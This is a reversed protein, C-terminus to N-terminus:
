RTTHFVIGIGISQISHSSSGFLEGAGFEIAKIDVNQFLALDLGAFGQVQTFNEYVLSLAPLTPPTVANTRGLGASIQVYPRLVKFPTKFTARGGGLVSFHRVLDAGGQYSFASKSSSLFSGRADVGLTVPGYTRFDYFAGLTGGYPRVMGDNSACLNQQDTCTISKLREASITGYAAFQARAAPVCCLGVLVGMLFIKRFNMNKM